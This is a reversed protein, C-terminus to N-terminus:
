PYNSLPSFAGAPLASSTSALTSARLEAEAEVALLAAVLIEKKANKTATPLALSVAKAQLAKYTMANLKCLASPEETPLIEDINFPTIAAPTIAATASAATATATATATASLIQSLLANKKHGSSIGLSKAKRQLERYNMSTLLMSDDVSSADKVGATCIKASTKPSASM